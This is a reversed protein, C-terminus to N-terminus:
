SFHDRNVTDISEHRAKDENAVGKTVADVAVQQANMASQYQDRESEARDAQESKLRAYFLASLVGLFALAALKIKALM